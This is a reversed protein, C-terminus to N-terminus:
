LPRMVFSVQTADIPQPGASQALSQRLRQVVV